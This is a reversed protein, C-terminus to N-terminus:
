VTRKTAALPRRAGLQEGVFSLYAPPPVDYPRFKEARGQEETYLLARFPGLKAAAPTDILNSSDDGSMPFLVRMEFERLTQRDFSRHLTNASESWALTHVGVAAGDKLISTFQQLPSVKPEEGFRGLGFDAEDRRLDRFRGLNYIVLYVAPAEHELSQNRREVEEAVASLITSANRWTAVEIPHPLVDALNPFFSAQPSDGRSGDLVYFRAAIAEGHGEQPAHQAALSVMASTLIGVALEEKQGVILLNSGTHRRFVAATPEKIAVPEGLYAEVARPAEPWARAELLSRLAPNKRVDAPANGEFVVPPWPAVYRRAAALERVKALQQERCDDPLWAIQFPKNGEVRGNADNYIAEGPRTLLRAATNGDSLILNADTESCELAIRVAMQGITSRALSYAGGLTQSGLLVHMGFARGQRVLRDLLLAADQAIKDDEVFLEQFEDVILLIRPLAKGSAARYAAIDQAGLRRFEDGRQKLELDLRQLVSLGFERESEVAVVRAHPLQHTVYTKFEVGKKFDILYLELEEPSYRMALSTILVHWLTSKGSGTKGAVVVHQSTGRGLRIHQLKTAGARGLPADIGGRSDAAWWEDASPVLHEFPVQVKNADKAAEGALHVIQSFVEPPPPADLRLPYAQFDDDQWTFKEGDWQLITSHQELDRLQFGHPLKQRTDVTVLTYVGCRAGSGAISALRRAAGDSFNTPFNAVVLIRFPEAVEGAESNYQDITEFENRLYTQIVNELHQTLDALRQEIHQPETWIRSSVLLEEYDALHMFGAFNDGLGIPDIITFRVKGPPITTLLRLMVAQLSQVAAARGEGYVKYLLSSRGPFPVVAPLSFNLLGYPKFREDQPQGGPLSRVDIESEGFRIAPPTTNPPQWQRWVTSHWSPFLERALAAIDMVDARIRDMSDRWASILDNWAQEDRQRASAWEAKHEAALRAADEQFQAALGPTDPAHHDQISRLKEDRIRTAEALRRSYRREAECLVEAREQEAAALRADRVSELRAMEDDHERQSQAMLRQHQEQSQDYARACWTEATALQAALPLYRRAADQKVRYALWASIIGM